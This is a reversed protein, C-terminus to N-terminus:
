RRARRRATIAREHDIERGSDAGDVLIRAGDTTIRRPIIGLCMSCTSAPGKGHPCARTLGFVGMFVDAANM